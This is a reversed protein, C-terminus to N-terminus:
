FVMIPKTDSLQMSRPPTLNVAFNLADAGSPLCLEFRLENIKNFKSSFMYRKLDPAFICSKEM